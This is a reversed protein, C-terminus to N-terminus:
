LNRIKINRFCTLGGHDQLGIHGKESMGYYSYDKWKGNNKRERWDQGWLEYEVVKIGNLWHEVHTGNVIIRTENWQGPPKVKANQPKHMAYNAGSLQNLNVSKDRNSDDRLQYEPGSEYIASISDLEQVHFFVGSNSKANIKWELYLEFDDYIEKTIIDGGHDSGIGSNCLIGDKIKWGTVEGGKFHRWGETTKGNFLLQWGQKKEKESLTNTAPKDCSIIFLLTVVTLLTKMQM